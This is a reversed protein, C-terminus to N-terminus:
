YEQTNQANNICEDLLSQSPFFFIVESCHDNFLNLDQWVWSTISCDNRSPLSLALSLVLGDPFYRAEAPQDSTQIKAMMMEVWRRNPIYSGNSSFYGFTVPNLLRISVVASQPSFLLCFFMMGDDSMCFVHADKAICLVVDLSTCDDASCCALAKLGTWSHM